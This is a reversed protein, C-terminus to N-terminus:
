GHLLRKYIRETKLAVNEVSHGLVMERGAKGMKRRTSSDNFLNELCAALEEPKGPGYLLGNRGKVVLEPTAGADAGIVPIGSALAELLVIGQTEVRSATVFVDANAYYKPLDGDGIFGPFVVVDSLSKRAVMRKLGGLAPGRGIIVMMFKRNKKKLLEAAKVLESVSKEKTMRGVHLVLPRGAPCFSRRFKKNRNAPSFRKVDVGNSVVEIPKRVGWKRLEKKTTESPATVLDCHNYFWVTYRKALLSLFSKSPGRRGLLPIYHIYDSIPTDFTGIIPRKFRRAFKKAILCLVVSSRVHVVDPNELIMAKWMNPSPLFIKFEPYPAFVFGRSRHVGYGEMEEYGKSRLGTGATFIAVRNRKALMRATNRVSTVVGNVQPLFTETFIGIKM